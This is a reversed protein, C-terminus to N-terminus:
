FDDFMDKSVHFTHDSKTKMEGGMRYEIKISERIYIINYTRKGSVRGNSVTGKKAIVTNEPRSFFYVTKRELVQTSYQAIAWVVSSSVQIVKKRQSRPMESDFGGNSNRSM